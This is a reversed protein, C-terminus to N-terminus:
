LKLLRFDSKRFWILGEKRMLSLERSMASRDVSLFDALQQRDFPISFSPCGARKAESSLYSMLKERISRESIHSLKLALQMNKGSLESFLNRIVANRLALGSQSPSLLRDVSLLLVSSPEAAVASVLMPAQSLAYSEGFIEGPHIASLINRNGWYDDKQIHVLGSLLFAFSEPRDGESFIYEGRGYEQMDAPLSSILALVDKEDLGSFLRAGEPLRISQM